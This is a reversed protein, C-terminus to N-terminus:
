WPPPTNSKSKEIYRSMRSMRLMDCSAPLAHLLKWIVNMVFTLSCPSWGNCTRHFKDVSLCLFCDKYTTTKQRKTTRCRVYCSSRLWDVSVIGFQVEGLPALIQHIAPSSNKRPIAHPKMATFWVQLFKQLDSAFRQAAVARAAWLPRVVDHQLAHPEFQEPHLAETERVSTKQGNQKLVKISWHCNFEWASPSYRSHSVM